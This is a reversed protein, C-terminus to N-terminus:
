DWWSWSRICLVHWGPKDWTSPDWLRSTSITNWRIDRSPCLRITCLSVLWWSSSSLWQTSDRSKMHSRRRQHWRLSQRTWNLQRINALRWTQQCGWAFEMSQYWWGGTCNTGSWCSWGCLHRTCRSHEWAVMLCELQRFRSWIYICTWEARAPILGCLDKALLWPM